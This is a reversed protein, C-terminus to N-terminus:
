FQVTHYVLIEVCSKNVKLPMLRILFFVFDCKRVLSVLLDILTELQMIILFMINCKTRKGWVQHM